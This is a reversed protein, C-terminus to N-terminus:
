VVLLIVDQCSLINSRYLFTLDLMCLEFKEVYDKSKKTVRNLFKKWTTM